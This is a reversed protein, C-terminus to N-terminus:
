FGTQPWRQRLATAHPVPRPERDDTAEPPGFGSRTDRLFLAVVVAALAVVAAALFAVATATASPRGPAAFLVALYGGTGVFMGSQRAFNLAISASSWRSFSAGSFLSQTLVPNVLGLGAGALMGCGALVAAGATARTWAFAGLGTCALMMGTVAVTRGLGRGFLRGGVASATVMALAAPTVLLGAAVPSWGLVVQLHVPALVFVAPVLTGALFAGVLPPASWRERLLRPELAARDGAVVTVAAFVVIGLAALTYCLVAAASGWGWRAGAGTVVALPAFVLLLAGTGATPVRDPSPSRGPVVAAAFALGLTALVAEAAFLWRPGAEAAAGGLLPGTVTLASYVAGYIGLYRGRDRPETVDTVLRIAVVAVAGAAAGQWARTAALWPMAPAVVTAAAGAALAALAVLFCRRIGIRDAARRAILGTLLFAALYPTTPWALQDLGDLASATRVAAVGVAAQDAAVALLGTLVAAVVLGPGPTRAPRPRYEDVDRRLPTDALAALLRGPREGARRPTFAPTTDGLAELLRRAM